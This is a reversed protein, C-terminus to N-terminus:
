AEDEEDEEEEDEEREKTRGDAQSSLSDLLLSELEMCSNTALPSCHTTDPEFSGPTYQQVCQTEVVVNDHPCSATQQSVTVFVLTSPVAIHGLEGMDEAHWSLHKDSGTGADFAVSPNQTPLPTSMIMVPNM